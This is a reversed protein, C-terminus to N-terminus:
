KGNKLSEREFKAFSNAILNYCDVQFQTLENEDFKYGLKSLNKKTLYESVM